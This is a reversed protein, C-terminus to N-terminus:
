LYFNYNVLSAVWQHSTTDLKVMMLVYTLPNNNTYIDFTLAYLYEHFKEVVDWKLTIFELNHTPYLTEAKTLSRSAYAIVADAGDDHTQYLVAGLDSKCANTHLKFPRKFSTYALIPAMVCLYKLEDFLQQCRDNWAIAVKKKGANESSTLEHLTWAVQMFKPIVQYYYGM